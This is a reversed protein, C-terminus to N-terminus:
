VTQVGNDLLAFTVRVLFGVHSLKDFLERWVRVSSGAPAATAAVLVSKNDERPRRAFAVDFHVEAGVASPHGVAPFDNRAPGAVSHCPAGHSCLQYSTELLRKGLARLAFRLVTM